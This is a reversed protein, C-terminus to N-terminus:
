RYVEPGAELDKGAASAVRQPGSLGLRALIAAAERAGAPRVRGREVVTPLADVAVIRKGRLVVRLVAGWRCDVPYLQDFLFNGLSYAVLTEGSWEVRQPVHPGHGVILGAGAEALAGAVARQRPSPAAQYEGGWHVSVVVLDAQEAAAAVAKAAVGLDLPGASDDFALFTSVPSDSIPSRYVSLGGDPHVRLRHPWDKVDPWDGTESTRGKLRPYPLPCIGAVRLADVTEWLGAKGADLAHNNALCVIDFGALRLATVAEPSARLDFGDALQPGVTLPSELNAFALDADALWPRVDAFAAEWDGELAQAVGRGLM